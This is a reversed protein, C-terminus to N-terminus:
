FNLDDPPAKITDDEKESTTEEAEVKIFKLKITGDSPEFRTQGYSPRVVLRGQNILKVLAECREIPLLLATNYPLELYLNM